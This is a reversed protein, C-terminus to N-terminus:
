ELVWCWGLALFPLFAPSHCLRISPMHWSVKLLGEHYHGTTGCCWMLSSCHQPGFESQKKIVDGPHGPAMSVLNVFHPMVEVHHVYRLSEVSCPRMRDVAQLLLFLKSSRAGWYLGVYGRCPSSARKPLGYLVIMAAQLRNQSGSEHSGGYREFQGMFGGAIHDLLDRTM